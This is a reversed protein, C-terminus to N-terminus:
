ANARRRNYAIVGVTVIALGAVVIAIIGAGGTHPLIGEPTDTVVTGQDDASVQKSDKATLKTDEVKADGVHGDQNYGSPADTEEATYEDTASSLGYYTTGEDTKTSSEPDAAFGFQGKEDSIFTTPKANPDDKSVWTVNVPTDSFGTVTENDLQAYLGDKNKIQFKAGPLPTKQNYKDVKTFKLQFSGSVEDKPFVNATPVREGDKIVPLSIVFDASKNYGAPTDTEQFVYVAPKGNSYDPLSATASGNGTTTFVTPDTTVKTTDFDSATISDASIEKEVGANATGDDTTNADYKAWYQDTVDYAKYTAGNVTKSTKMQEEFESQTTTLPFTHETTGEPVSYKTLTVDTTSSGDTADAASVKSGIGAGLGIAGAMVAASIFTLAKKFFANKKM